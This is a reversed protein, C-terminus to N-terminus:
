NMVLMDMCRVYQYFNPAQFQALCGVDPKDKM